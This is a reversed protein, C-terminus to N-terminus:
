WGNYGFGWRDGWPGWAGWDWSPDSFNMAAIEDENVLERTQQNQRYQGYAQQTGVYLCGCAKPDAYVYTVADGKVRKVFKNAPLRKLMDTRKPTNAPKDVFGAALLLDEKKEIAKASKAAAPTAAIPLVTACALLAIVFRPRQFQM